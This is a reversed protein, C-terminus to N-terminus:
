KLNKPNYDMNMYKNGLKLEGIMQKLRRLKTENKKARTIWGVYDNQQYPPRSLYEDELDEKEIALRIFEPM